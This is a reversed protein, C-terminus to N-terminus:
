YVWVATGVPMLGAGWIHDMARYTVRVCGHSAPHAPVSTYGHIAVGEHFHKPRYLLGLPSRRLGDIERSITWQEPPTTGPRDRRPTSSPPWGATTWWWCCSARSPFRSWTALGAALM